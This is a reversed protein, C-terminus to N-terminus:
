TFVRRLFLVAGLGFFAIGLLAWIRDNGHGIALIALRGFVFTLGAMAFMFNRFRESRLPSEFTFWDHLFPLSFLSVLLFFIGAWFDEPQNCGLTAGLGLVWPWDHISLPLNYHVM